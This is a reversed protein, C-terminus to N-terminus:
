VELGYVKMMRFLDRDALMLSALMSQPRRSAKRPHYLLDFDYYKICEM